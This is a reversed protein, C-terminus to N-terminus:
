GISAFFFADWKPSVLLWNAASFLCNRAGFDLRCFRRGTGGGFGCPNKVHPSKWPVGVTLRYRLPLLMNKKFFALNQIWLFGFLLSQSSYFRLSSSRYHSTDLEWICMVVPNYLTIGLCKGYSFNSWGTVGTVQSALSRSFSWTKCMFNLQWFTSRAMKQLHWRAFRPVM